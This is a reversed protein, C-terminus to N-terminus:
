RPVGEIFTLPQAAEVSQRTVLYALADRYDQCGHGRWRRRCRRCRRLGTWSRRPRHTELANRMDAAKADALITEM